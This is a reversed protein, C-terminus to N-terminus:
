DENNHDKKQSEKAGALVQGIQTPLFSFPFLPSTVGVNGTSWQKSSCFSVLQVTFPPDAGSPLSWCFLTPSLTPRFSVLGDQM